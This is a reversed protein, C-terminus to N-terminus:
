YTAQIALYSSFQNTTAINILGRGASFLLHYHDNIDLKGGVNFGGVSPDGAKQSSEHFVEIGLQLNQKVQNLVTVGTFLSNKSGPGYRNIRYGGGGYVTWYGSDRQIWVPLFAQVKNSGPNISNEATPLMAMPYIGAMWTVDSHRYNLFRYKVGIETNDIGYGKRGDAHNYTMKPQAHIQVDPFLGYNIDVSPAGVLHQGQAVTDTIATNIEWHGLEV